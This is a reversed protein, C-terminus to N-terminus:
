FNLTLGIGNNTAGFNLTVDSSRQNYGDVVANLKRHSSITLITSPIAYMVAGAAFFGGIVWYLMAGTANECYIDHGNEKEQQHDHNNICDNKLSNAIAFSTISGAGEVATAAWFPISAIYRNRGRIYSDYSEEDLMSKLEIKSLRENTVANIIRGNRKKITINENSTQAFSFMTIFLLTLLTISKKM